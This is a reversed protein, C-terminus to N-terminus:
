FSNRFPSSTMHKRFTTALRRKSNKRFGFASDRHMTTIEPSITMTVLANQLRAPSTQDKYEAFDKELMPLGYEEFFVESIKLGNWM